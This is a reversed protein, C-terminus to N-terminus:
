HSSTKWAGKARTPARTQKAAVDELEVLWRNPDKAMLRQITINVTQHIKQSVFDADPDKKQQAAHMQDIYYAAFGRGIGGSWRGLDYDMGGGAM